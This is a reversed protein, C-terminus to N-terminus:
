KRLAPKGCLHTSRALLSQLQLVIRLSNSIMLGWSSADTDPQEEIKALMRLFEAAPIGAGDKDLVSADRFAVMAPMDKWVSPSM